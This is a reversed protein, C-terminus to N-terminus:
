SQLLQCVGESASPQENPRCQLQAPTVPKKRTFFELMSKVLVYLVPIFILNLTVNFVVNFISVYM